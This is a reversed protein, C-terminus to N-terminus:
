IDDRAQQLMVENCTEAESVNYIGSLVDENMEKAIFGYYQYKAVPQLSNQKSVTNIM